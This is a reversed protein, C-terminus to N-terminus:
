GHPLVRISRHGLLHQEQDIVKWPKAAKNGLTTVQGRTNTIVACAPDALLRVVFLSQRVKESLCFCTPLEPGYRCVM